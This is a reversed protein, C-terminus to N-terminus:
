AGQVHDGESRDLQVRAVGGNAHDHGADGHAGPTNPMIFVEPPKTSYSYILGLTSEDPSSTAENSGTMATIKTRAGGDISVTYLHREGPHNETSTVYFKKGDRPSHPPPSRGSGKTLQKPKAGDASVDLTYLHMWGDRESLFWVRKNDPLFEVGSGGFRCSASGRMTM